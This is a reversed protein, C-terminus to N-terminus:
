HGLGAALLVLGAIDRNSQLVAPSLGTSGPVASANNPAIQNYVPTVTFSGSAVTDSVRGYGFGVIQGLAADVIPVYGDGAAVTAAALNHPPDGVYVAVASDIYHGDAATCANVGDLSGSAGHPTLQLGGTLAAWCTKTVAFPTVGLLGARAVGARLAPRSHAIAAAHIPIGNTRLGNPDSNTAVQTGMGFLLPLPPQGSSVGGTHDLPGNARRLRVLFSPARSSAFACDASEPDAARFDSRAYTADESPRQGPVFCGSVMDGSQIQPDGPNSQLVPKYVGSNDLDLVQRTSNLPPVVPAIGDQVAIVPGAGLWASGETADSLHEIETEGPQCHPNFTDDFNWAAMQCAALRRDQDATAGVTDRGRLGELAATDAANQMQVQTLRAIGLDITLAAVGFLMLIVFCLQILM